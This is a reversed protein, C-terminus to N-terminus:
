LQASELWRATREHYTELQTTLREMELGTFLGEILTYGVTGGAVISALLVVAFIPGQFRSWHDGKSAETM